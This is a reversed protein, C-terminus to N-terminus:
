TGHKAKINAAVKSQQSTSKTNSHVNLNNAGKLVKGRRFALSRQDNLDDFNISDIDKSLVSALGLRSLQLSAPNGTSRFSSRLKMLRELDPNSQVPSNRGRATNDSIEEMVLNNGITKPASSIREEPENQEIFNNERAAFNPAEDVNETYMRQTPNSHRFLISQSEPLDFGGAKQLLSGERSTTEPSSGQFLSSRSTPFDVPSASMRVPSGIVPSSTIPSGGLIPSGKFPSVSVPQRPLPAIVGNDLMQAHIPQEMLASRMNGQLMNIGGLQGVGTGQTPESMIPSGQFGNNVQTLSNRGSLDAFGENGENEGRNSALLLEQRMENLVANRDSNGLAQRLIQRMLRSNGQTPIPGFGNLGEGNLAESLSGVSNLQGRGRFKAKLKRLLPVMRLSHRHNGSMVFPNGDWNENIGNMSESEFPSETPDEVNDLLSMQNEGRNLKSMLVNKLWPLMKTPWIMAKKSHNKNKCSEEEKELNLLECLLKTFVMTEEKGHQTNNSHNTKYRTIHSQISYGRSENNGKDKQTKPFKITTLNKKSGPDNKKESTASISSNNKQLSSPM